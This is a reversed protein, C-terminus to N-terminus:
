WGGWVFGLQWRFRGGCGGGGSGRGLYCWWRLWRTGIKRKTYMVRGIVVELMEFDDGGGRFMIKKMRKKNPKQLFINKFDNQLHTVM